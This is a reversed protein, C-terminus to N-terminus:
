RNGRIRRAVARLLAKIEPHRERLVKKRDVVTSVVGDTAVNSKPRV